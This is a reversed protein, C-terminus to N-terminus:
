EKNDLSIICGINSITKSDSIARNIARAVSAAPMVDPLGKGRLLPFVKEMKRTDFVGQYACQSLFKFFSGVRDQIIGEESEKCPISITVMRCSFKTLRKKLIERVDEVNARALKNAIDSRMKIISVLQDSGPTLIASEADNAIRIKKVSREEEIDITSLLRGTDKSVPLVGLPECIDRVQNVDDLKDEMVFPIVRLKGSEWNVTLTNEVDNSYGSAFIAVSIKKDHAETLIRDLESVETVMGDFVVISVDSLDRLQGIRTKFGKSLHCNVKLGDRIELSSVSGITREIKISGMAGALNCAEIITEKNDWLADNNISRKWSNAIVRSSVRRQRNNTYFQKISKEFDNTSVNVDNLLQQLTSLYVAVAPQCESNIVYASNLILNRYAQQCDLGEVLIRLADSWNLTQLSDGLLVHTDQNEIKTAISSINKSASRKLADVDETSHVQTYM